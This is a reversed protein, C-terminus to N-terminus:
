QKRKSSRIFTKERYYAPSLLIEGTEKDIEPKIGQL